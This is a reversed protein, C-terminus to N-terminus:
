WYGDSFFGTMKSGMSGHLVQQSTSELWVELEWMWTPHSEKDLLDMDLEELDESVKEQTM